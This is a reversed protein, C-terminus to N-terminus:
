VLGEKMANATATYVSRIARRRQAEPLHLMRGAWREMPPTIEHGGWTAYMADAWNQQAPTLEDPLAREALEDMEARLEAKRDPTM